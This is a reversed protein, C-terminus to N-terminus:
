AGVEKRRMWWGLASAAWFGILWIVFTTGGGAVLVLIIVSDVEPKGVEPSILESLRMLLAVTSTPWVVFTGLLFVLRRARKAQNRACFYIPIWLAGMLSLSSVHIVKWM